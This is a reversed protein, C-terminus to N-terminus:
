ACRRWAGIGGGSLFCSQAPSHCGSALIAKTTGGDYGHPVHAYSRVPYREAAASEAWPGGLHVTGARRCAQNTLPVGARASGVPRPQITRAAQKM